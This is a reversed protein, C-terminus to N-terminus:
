SVGTSYEGHGQPTDFDYIRGKEEDNRAYERPLGNRKNGSVPNSQADRYVSSGAKRSLSLLVMINM